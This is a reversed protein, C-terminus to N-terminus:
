KKGPAPGEAPPASLKALYKEPEKRLKGACGKCCLFLTRGGVEAKWPAGMSGLEAGMVPCKGQRAVAEQDAKGAPTLEIAPPLPRKGIAALYKQPEERITEICPECCVYVTQGAVVGKAPPGMEGLKEGTVPCIVQRAIAVAEPDLAFPVRGEVRAAATGAGPFGQLYCEVRVEGPERRTLDIPVFLENRGPAAPFLSLRQVGGPDDAAALLLLGRAGRAPVPRMQGDFLYVRVGGPEWCVECAFGDGRLLHGGHPSAAPKPAEEGTAALPFFVLAALLSAYRM